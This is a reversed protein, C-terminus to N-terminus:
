RAPKVTCLFQGHSVEARCSNINDQTIPLPSNGRVWNPLAYTSNAYNPNVVAESGTIDADLSGNVIAISVVSPVGMCTLGFTVDKMLAAGNDTLNLTTSPAAGCEGQASDMPQTSTVVYHHNPLDCEYRMNTSYFGLKKWVSWDFTPDTTVGSDIVVDEVDFYNSQPICTVRIFDEPQASASFSAAFGCLALLILSSRVSWGLRM